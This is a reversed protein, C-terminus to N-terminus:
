TRQKCKGTLDEMEIRWVATQELSEAAAAEFNPMNSPTHRRCLLRLAYLKEDRDSVEVAKGRIVASEYEVTFRDPPRRTDGVCALCVQGCNKLCDTKLGEQACHFYLSRGDRVISVPVCYPKGEPDVMSMVAWECKDTVMRAFEESMERDKRRM